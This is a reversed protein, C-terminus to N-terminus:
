FLIIIARRRQRPFNTPFPLSSPPLSFTDESEGLTVQPPHFYNIKDQLIFLTPPLFCSSFCEPRGGEELFTDTYLRYFSKGEVVFSPFSLTTETPPLKRYVVVSRTKGYNKARAFKRRCRCGTTPKKKKQSAVTHTMRRKKPLIPDNTGQQSVRFFLCCRGNKWVTASEKGLM